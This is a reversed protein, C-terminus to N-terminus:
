KNAEYFKQSDEYFHYEIIKNDKIVCMLAWNSSFAKGSSKLIHSFKGNAFVVDRESIINEVSFMKTDFTTGLNSIFKKVGEVGQYSGYIQDGDRNANRVATVKCSDHFSNIISNLDGKGFANFFGQVVEKSSNVTEMKKIKEINNTQATSNITGIALICMTAFVSVTKKM